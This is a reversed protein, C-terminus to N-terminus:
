THRECCNKYKKGSGCPCSDNRGTKKDSQVSTDLNKAWQIFDIDAFSPTRFNVKTTNNFNSIAFDGLSIIDMGILAELPSVLSCAGVLIQPIVVNNPLALSVYHLSVKDQGSATNVDRMSVIPLKLENAIEKSIVTGSAGTDWIAHIPRNTFQNGYAAVHIITSPYHSIGNYNETYASVTQKKGSYNNM